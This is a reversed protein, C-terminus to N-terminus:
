EQVRDPVTQGAASRKNRLSIVFLLTFFVAYAGFIWTLSNARLRCLEEIKARQNFPDECDIQQLIGSACTLSSAQGGVAMLLSVGCGIVLLMKM